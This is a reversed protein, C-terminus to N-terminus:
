ISGCAPMTAASLWAGEDGRVRMPVLYTRDGIRHLAFCLTATCRQDPVAVSRFPGTQPAGNGKAGCQAAGPVRRGAAFRSNRAVSDIQFRRFPFRKLM